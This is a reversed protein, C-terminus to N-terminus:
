RDIYLIGRSVIPGSFFNELGKQVPKLLKKCGAMCLPFSFIICFYFPLLIVLNMGQLDLSNTLNLKVWKPNKEQKEKIREM